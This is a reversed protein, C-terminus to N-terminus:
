IFLLTRIEQVFENAKDLTEKANEKTTAEIFGYIFNNRIKRINDFYDIM